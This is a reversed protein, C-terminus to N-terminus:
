KKIIKYSNFRDNNTQVKLIYLGSKLSTFDIELDNSNNSNIEKVVVGGSSFLQIKKISTQSSVTVKGVTPNPYVKVNEFEINEASVVLNGGNEAFRYAFNQFYQNAIETSHIILTNEDNRDNASNSWNHSGTIVQPDSAAYNADVIAMKHHLIGSASNDFIYKGTPLASNLIDNVTESNDSSHNTVVHVEAGRRNADSIANALDTRTILMTEVNLDNEATNIANIIKQNTGDSPSFYSQLRNGGVIFEHPTNNSKNAGFKANSENPQNESSGWMEEFEIRYSKALTQDQIFIMNNADTNVQDYTLNTSGSWVWPKEADASNADIIAFKNHMIGTGSNYPSEIVPIESVLDDVGYHETSGSTIFRIIVGRNHASNLAESVNSLGSNNINYICFDITETARNIYAILTDNMSKGIYQAITGTSLDTNVPTNFYANIAGTSNSETAFVGVSSFATDTNLVSFAKAYIITAPDLGSIEIKHFYEDGVQTSSGTGFNAWSSQNDLLGYIVESTSEVDTSWSLTFGSKTINNIEVPSTFNILAGSILDEMKRPLLQYGSRTDNYEFSYQSCIAILNIEGAPIVEGVIPSGNNIRFVGTKSGNTFNYNKGGDFTGNANEIEINNIQILQGEYDEGIEDITLVKPAPLNNGSSHITLGSVNKLEFLNNYIDIVGTITISDGRKISSLETGYIALGATADQIYRIDGLEEGNTIIGTITATEGEPLNRVDSINQQAITQLTTAVFLLFLVRKM